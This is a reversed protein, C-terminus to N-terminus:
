TSFRPAVGTEGGVRHKKKKKKRRKKKPSPEAGDQITPPGHLNLVPPLSPIPKHVTTVGEAVPQKEEEEDL